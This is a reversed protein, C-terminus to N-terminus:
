KVACVEKNILGFPVKGEAFEAINQLAMQVVVGRGEYTMGATHPSLIVNDLKLFESDLPLPEQDFADLAAGKVKGSKIADILAQEDVIGGRACNCIQVGQKMMTFSRADIMKATQETLPANISIFDSEQILTDLDVFTCGHEKAYADDHYIDYVLVRMDLGKVFRALKKGIFGFGVIGLTKRLLCNGFYSQFNNLRVAQDLFVVRRSLAMMMAMAHEAVADSNGGPTNTVLVGHRTAAEVDVTDWGAGMRAYLKVSPCATIVRESIVEGSVVHAYAQHANLTEILEDETLKRFRPDLVVKFGQKEFDSVHKEYGPIIQPDFSFTVVVKKIDQM